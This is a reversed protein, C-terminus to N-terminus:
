GRTLRPFWVMRQAHRLNGFLRYPPLDVLTAPVFTSPVVFSPTRMKFGFPLAVWKVCFSSCPAHGFNVRSTWAHPGLDCPVIAIGAIGGRHINPNVFLDHHFKCSVTPLQWVIQLASHSDRRVPASIGAHSPSRPWRLLSIVAM